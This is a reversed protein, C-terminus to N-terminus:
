GFSTDGTQGLTIGRFGVKAVLRWAGNYKPFSLKSHRIDQSATGTSDSPRGSAVFGGFSGGNEGWKGSKWSKESIAAFGDASCCTRAADAPGALGAPVTETHKAQSVGLHTPFKCLRPMKGPIVSKVSEKVKLRAITRLSAVIAMFWMWFANEAALENPLPKTFAAHPQCDSAKRAAEMESAMADHPRM